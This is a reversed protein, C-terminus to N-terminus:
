VTYQRLRAHGIADYERAIEVICTEGIHESLLSATYHLGKEDELTTLLRPSFISNYLSVWVTDLEPFHHHKLVVYTRYHTASDIYQYAWTNIIAQPTRGWGGQTYKSLIREVDAIEDRHMRQIHQLTEQTLRNGHTFDDAHIVEHVASYYTATTALEAQHFRQGELLLNEDLVITSPAKFYGYTKSIVNGSRRIRFTGAKLEGHQLRESTEEIRTFLPLDLDDRTSQVLEISKLVLQRVDADTLRKLPLIEIIVV